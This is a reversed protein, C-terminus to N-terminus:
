KMAVVDELQWTKDFFAEAPGYFRFIPGSSGFFVSQSLAFRGFTWIQSACRCSAVYISRTSSLTTKVVSKVLTDRLASKTPHTASVGGHPHGVSQPSIFVESTRMTKAATSM